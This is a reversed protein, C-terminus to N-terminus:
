TTETGRDREAARSGHVIVLDDVCHACAQESGTQANREKRAESGLGDHVTSTCEGVSEGHEGQDVGQDDFGGAGNRACFGNSPTDDIHAAIPGVEWSQAEKGDGEAARDIAVDARGHDPGGDVACESEQQGNAAIADVDGRPQRVGKGQSRTQDRSSSDVEEKALGLVIFDVLRCHDAGAPVKGALDEPHSADHGEHDPVGDVSRPAVGLLAIQREISAHGSDAVEEEKADKAAHKQDEQVIIAVRSAAGNDLGDGARGLGSGAVLRGKAAVAFGSAGQHWLGSCGLSLIRVVHCLLHPPANRYLLKTKDM